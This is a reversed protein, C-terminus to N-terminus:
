PAAPPRVAASIPAQVHRYLGPEDSGDGNWDGAVPIDTAGGMTFGRDSADLQRDGNSDIYWTGRRYVALDDIGDGNFDGVVPLDGATGFTIIGDASTWRGDGDLDLRWRGDHFVGISRIGDGNWDGTVPIDGHVGFRFVHDVVDSRRPGAISRQLLRPRDTAEASDPPINKPKNKPSNDSDPLGPEALMARPDGAWEPGFVGIDDKGDGDWDGTVPLDEDTGLLAWLDEPDWEGNGNLDLFWEGRLYVGLETIGDGNFDGTVPLAGAMGFIIERPPAVPKSEAARYGLTWQGSQLRDARWGSVNLFTAVMRLEPEPSSSADATRPQGADIV